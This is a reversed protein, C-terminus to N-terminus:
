VPRVRSFRDPWSALFVSRLPFSLSSRSTPQGGPGGRGAPVSPTKESHHLHRSEAALGGAARGLGRSPGGGIHM